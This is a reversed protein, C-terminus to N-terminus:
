EWVDVFMGHCVCCYTYVLCIFLNGKIILLFYIVSILWLVELCATQQPESLLHLLKQVRERSPHRETRLLWPKALQTGVHNRRRKRKGKSKIRKGEEKEGIYQPEWVPVLVLSQLNESHLRIQGPIAIYVLSAKFDCIDEQRQRGFISKSKPVHDLIAWAPRCSVTYVKFFKQNEHRYKGLVETNNCIYATM